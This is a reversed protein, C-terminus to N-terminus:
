KGLRYVHVGIPAFDDAFGDGGVALTRHEFIEEARTFGKVGFRVRVRENASNVAILLPKEGAKLLFSISPQGRADVAPGELVMASPQEAADRLLLDSQLSAVERFVRRTSAWREPTSVAGHNKEENRSGYLYLMLGRARHALAAFCQARLEKESPFYSHGWGDFFQVIPWIGKAPSGNEAVADNVARMDRVFTAIESGTSGDRYPYIEPLFVDTSHVYPAYRCLGGVTVPPDAQLTIRGPDLIRCVRHRDAVESPSAWSSTDDALYWAIISSHKRRQPVLGKEYIDEGFHRMPPIFTKLGMRDALPLFEDYDKGRTGNMLVTNFGAEKLDAFANELNFGNFACKRVSYIGIPFFPEGDVLLAGDDRLATTAGGDSVDPAQVVKFASVALVDDKRFDPRDAGISAVAFAAGSPVKTKAFSYQWRSGNVALGFDFVESLQAGGAGYWRIATKFSGQYGGPVCMGEVTGRARVVVMLKEGPTVSFREGRLEWATGNTTNTGSHRVVFATEGAFKEVSLAAIKNYNQTKWGDLGNAFSGEWGAASSMGGAFVLAAAFASKVPSLTKRTDM